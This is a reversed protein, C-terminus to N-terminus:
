RVHQLPQLTSFLLNCLKAALTRGNQSTSSDAVEEKLLSLCLFARVQQYFMKSQASLRDSKAVLADITEGRELLQEFTKEAVELTDKLEKQITELSNVQKPSLDESSDEKPNDKELDQSQKIYDKLQPFSLPPTSNVDQLKVNAYAAQSYNTHFEDCIKSLFACATLL